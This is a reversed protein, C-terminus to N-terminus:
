SSTARGADLERYLTEWRTVIQEIDFHETVHERGQEGMAHREDETLDMMQLMGQQLARSDLRPVIFGNIGDMVVERCGGVDTTVIPLRSAAAELLVLPLAEGTSSSLVFADAAAMLAPVDERPGLLTVTQHLDFEDITRVIAERQPGDGALALRVGAPMGEFARVLRDFSKMPRFVGVALWLFDEEPVRLGQRVATRSPKGGDFRQVDIGNPIWTSRHSAVVGSAEYGRMGLRSVHTTSDALRDTLRLIAEKGRGEQGISHSTCVLVPTPSIPRVVRALLNAHIMHSHVISPHRRRIVSRLRIIAWPNWSGRPMGLHEVEVGADSLSQTSISPAMMSVITVRWGRESLRLALDQVQNEAGGVALDTILFLIRTDDREPRLADASSRDNM